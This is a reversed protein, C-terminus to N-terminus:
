FVDVVDEINGLSIARIAAETNNIIEILSANEEPAFDQKLFKKTNEIEEGGIGIKIRVFNPTRLAEAVSVVGPHEDVGEAPGKQIVTKGLPQGIQEHIVIIDQARVKLFSAIYLVSEGCLNVYTQPKLLVIDEGEFEGRGILSKKKKTKIEIGHNSAIVDLIKFGINGRNNVYKEGPNGFGTILKM